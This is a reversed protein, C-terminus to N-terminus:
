TIAIETWNDMLDWFDIGIMPEDDDLWLVHATPNTSHTSEINLYGQGKGGSNFIHVNEGLLRNAVSASPEELYDYGDSGLLKILHLPLIGGQMNLDCFGDLHRYFIDVNGLIQRKLLPVGSIYFFVDGDDSGEYIYYYKESISILYADNFMSKIINKSTPMKLMAQDLLDFFAKKRVSPDKHLIDERFSFGNSSPIHELLVTSNIRSLLLDLEM